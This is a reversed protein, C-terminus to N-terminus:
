RTGQAALAPEFALPPVVARTGAPPSGLGDTVPSATAHADEPAPAPLPIRAEPRRAPCPGGAVSGVAAPARHRGPLRRLGAPWRRCTVLTAVLGVLGVATCVEQPPVVEAVAGGAALALGQAVMLGSQALAFARGRVEPTLQAVFATNAPIQFGAGVGVLVWTLFLLHPNSTAASGMLALAAVVALPRLLGVRDRPSVLRGVVLAAIATGLPVAATLLGAGVAGLGLEHAVPVALGEPVIAVAAGVWALVLLRRLVTSALVFEAGARAQRLWSADREDSAAAPRWVSGTRVLLASVLFTLADLALAVHAGVLGAITGGLAFGAAIVVTVSVMKLSQGVTYQDEDPLVDPLLSAQAADFPPELLAIALVLVFLLWLPVGPLAMVVVLGARVLDLTIMVTRRPKTDALHALAPGGILWPLYTVAYSLSALLPSDSRQFVLLALAVKAVQDGLLSLLQATYLARFERVRLVSAYTARGPAATM